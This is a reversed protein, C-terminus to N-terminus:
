FPYSGKPTRAPALTIHSLFSSYPPRSKLGEQSYPVKDAVLFSPGMMQGGGPSTCFRPWQCSFPGPLPGPSRRRLNTAPLRLSHPKYLRQLPPPHSVRGVGHCPLFVCTYQLSNIPLGPCLPAAVSLASFFFLFQGNLHSPPSGRYLLKELPFCGNKARLLIAELLSFSLFFCFLILL